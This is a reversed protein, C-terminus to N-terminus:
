EQRDRGKKETMGPSRDGGKKRDNGALSGRGKKETMGPSRDGGKKETM